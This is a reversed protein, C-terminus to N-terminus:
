FKNEYQKVSWEKGQLKNWLKKHLPLRDYAQKEKRLEDEDLHHILKVLNPISEEENKSFFLQILSSFEKFNQYGAFFDNAGDTLVHKQLLASLSLTEQLQTDPATAKNLADFKQMHMSNIGIIPTDLLLAVIDKKNKPHHVDKAEFLVIENAAVKNYLEDLPKIPYTATHCIIANGEKGTMVHQLLKLQSTNSTIENVEFREFFSAYADFPAPQSTNIVMVTDAPPKLNYVTLYKLLAYRCENISANDTAQYILYNLM